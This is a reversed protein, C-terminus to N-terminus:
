KISGPSCLRLEGGVTWVSSSSRNVVRKKDDHRRGFPARDRETHVRVDRSVSRTRNSYVVPGLVVQKHAHAVRMRQRRGRERGLQQADLRVRRSVRSIFEELRHFIVLLEGHNHVAFQPHRELRPSAELAIPIAPAVTLAVASQGVTFTRLGEINEIHPCLERAHRRLGALHFEVFLVPLKKPLWLRRRARCGRAEDSVKVCAAHRIGAGCWGGKGCGRAFDVHCPQTSGLIKGALGRWAPSLSFRPVNQVSKRDRIAVGV